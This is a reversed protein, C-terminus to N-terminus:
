KATLRQIGMRDTTMDYVVATVARAAGKLSTSYTIGAAVMHQYAEDRLQLDM